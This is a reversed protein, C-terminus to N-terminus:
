CAPKGNAGNVVGGSGFMCTSLQSREIDQRDQLRREAWQARTACIKKKGLRSGTVTITECVKENWYDNNTVAAKEEASVPSSLTVAVLACVMVLRM